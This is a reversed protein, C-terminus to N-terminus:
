KSGKATTSLDLVQHFIDHKRTDIGLRLDTDSPMESVTIPRKDDGDFNLWAM